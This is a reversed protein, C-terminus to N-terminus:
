TQPKEGSEFEGSSILDYVTSASWGLPGSARNNKKGPNQFYTYALVTTVDASVIFECTERHHEGPEVVFEGEAWRKIHQELVDWQFDEIEPGDLARTYVSEVFEDTTPNIQQLLYAAEQLEVQVRSNNFLTATVSLHTYSTGIPRHSIEHSVSLHPERIRFLQFRYAAFLGGFVIAVVTALPQMLEVAEAFGGEPQVIGYAIGFLVGVAFLGGFIIAIM